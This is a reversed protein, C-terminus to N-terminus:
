RNTDEPFISQPLPMDDIEPFQDEAALPQLEALVELLDKRKVPKLISQEDDRHIPM